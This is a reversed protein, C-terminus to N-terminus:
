DEKTHGGLVMARLAEKNMVTPLVRHEDVTDKAVIHTITVPKDQGIRYIRDAAQLNDGPNWSIDLFIANNARFLNVSEGMTSITGVFVRGRGGQFEEIMRFREDHSVSGDVRYTEIGKAELRQEIARATARYWTFVVFAEDENDEILELALDIKTSDVVEGDDIDLPLGSAIQRLKSLMTIGEQAAILRGDDLRAICSDRLEDYVRRQSPSLDVLLKQETRDPLDLEDNKTRYVMFVGLEDRLEGLREIKIGVPIKSYGGEVYDIFRDNWDRWKSRYRDPFLWQLPSFLEDVHNAIVTGSLALKYRAPVKKLARTMKAKPNKIRHAEDAVVLEWEGYKNWGRGDKGGIIALAEYHVVLLVSEGNRRWERVWRLVRERQAKANPLVEIHDFQGGLFANCDPEWVSRKATNPAVVLVAQCDLEDILAVTGITKGLGREWGIYAGGHQELVAAVYGLDLEQYRYFDSGWRGEMQHRTRGAGIPSDFATANDFPRVDQILKDRVKVLEPHAFALEPFLRLAAAAARPTVGAESMVWAKSDRDYYAGPISRAVVSKTMDTTITIRGTAETTTM